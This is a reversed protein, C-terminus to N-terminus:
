CGDLDSKKQRKSYNMKRVDVEDNYEINAQLM